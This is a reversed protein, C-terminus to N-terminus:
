KYRLLRFMHEIRGEKGVHYSIYDYKEVIEVKGGYAKTVSEIFGVADELSMRKGDLEKLVEVVPQYLRMSAGLFGPHPDYLMVIDTLKM